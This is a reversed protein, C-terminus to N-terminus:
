IPRVPLTTHFHKWVVYGIAVLLAPVLIIFFGRNM